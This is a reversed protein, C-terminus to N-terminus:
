YTQLTGTYLLCEFTRGGFGMEPGGWFLSPEKTNKIGSCVAKINSENTRLRYVKTKFNTFVLILVWLSQDLGDDGRAIASDQYLNMGCTKEQANLCCRFWSFTFITFTACAEQTLYRVLCIFMVSFDLFLSIVLIVLFYLNEPLCEKPILWLIPPSDFYETTNLTVGSNIPSCTFHWRFSPFLLM